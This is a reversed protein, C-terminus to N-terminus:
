WTASLLSPERIPLLTIVFTWPICQHLVRRDVPRITNEKARMVKLGIVTVPVFQDRQL